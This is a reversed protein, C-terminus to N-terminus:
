SCTTAIITSVQPKRALTYQKIDAHRLSRSIVHKSSPSEQHHVTIRTNGLEYTLPPPMKVVVSYSGRRRTVHIGDSGFWEALSSLDLALTQFRQINAPRLTNADLLCDLAILGEISVEM